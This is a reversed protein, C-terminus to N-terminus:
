KISIYILQFKLGLDFSLFFLLWAGFGLLALAITLHRNLQRLHALLFGLNILNNEAVHDTLRKVIRIDTPLQGFNPLHRLFCLFILNFYSNNLKIKHCLSRISM